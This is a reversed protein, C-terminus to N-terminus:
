PALKSERAAAHPQVPTTEPAEKTEAAPKKAAANHAATLNAVNQLAAPAAESAPDAAPKPTANDNAAEKGRRTILGKAKAFLSKSFEAMKGFPKEVAKVAPIALLGAGTGAAITAATELAGAVLPSHSVLHSLGHLAHEAGPIGHLLIGGGVSFMAATGLISIGKMIHPVSKVLGKGFARRTKAWWGDGEKEALHLGIDDLKVIGGVVGYIGATMAVGVAALAGLQVLFPSAAIAGLSVVVIEASLIFDTKIASAIKEKEIEAPSKQTKHEEEHKGGHLLKEAGEYALYAGGLMMLPPIAWPAFAGLALAGPILYYFKNRLSGKAVEYVVHLEREPTIGDGSLAYSNVALDDGSIGATKKAAIKAMTGVDDLLALLGGVPM